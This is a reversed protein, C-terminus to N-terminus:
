KFFKGTLSLGLTVRKNRYKKLHDSTSVMFNYRIFDDCKYENEAPSPLDFILLIWVKLWKNTLDM